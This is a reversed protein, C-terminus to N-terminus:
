VKLGVNALRQFGPKALLKQSVVITTQIKILITIAIISMSTKTVMIFSTAMVFNIAMIVKTTITLSTAIMVSIVMMVRTDTMVGMAIINSTVM